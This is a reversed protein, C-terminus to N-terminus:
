IQLRCFLAVACTYPWYILRWDLGQGKKRQAGNCIKDDAYFQYNKRKRKKRRILKWVITKLVGGGWAKADAMPTLDEFNM